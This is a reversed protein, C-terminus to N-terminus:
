PATKVWTLSGGHSKKLSYIGGEEGSILPAKGLGATDFRYFNQGLINISKREKINLYLIKKLGYHKYRGLFTQLNFESCLNTFLIKRLICIGGEGKKWCYEISYQNAQYGGEELHWLTLIILIEEQLVSKNMLLHSISVKSYCMRFGIQKIQVYEKVLKKVFLTM